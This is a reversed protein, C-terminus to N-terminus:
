WNCPVVNWFFTIKMSATMLVQYRMCIFPHQYLSWKSIIITQYIRIDTFGEHLPNWIVVAHHMKLNCICYFTDLYPPYGYTYLKSNSHWSDTQIPNKSFQPL